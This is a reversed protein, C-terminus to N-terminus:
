VRTSPRVNIGALQSREDESLQWDQCQSCLQDFVDHLKSRAIKVVETDDFERSNLFIPLNFSTQHGEIHFTLRIDEGRENSEIMEIRAVRVTFNGMMESGQILRDIKCCAAWANDGHEGLGAV